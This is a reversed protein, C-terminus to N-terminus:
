VRLSLHGYLRGGLLSLLPVGPPLLSLDLSPSGEPLLTISCTCCYRSVSPGLGVAFLAPVSAPGPVCACKLSQSAQRMEKEAPPRHQHWSSLRQWRRLTEVGWWTGPFRSQDPPTLYPHLVSMHLFCSHCCLWLFHCPDAQLSVTLEGPQEALYPSFAPYLCYKTFIESKNLFFFFTGMKFHTNFIHKYINIFSSPFIFVLIIIITM